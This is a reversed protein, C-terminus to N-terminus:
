VSMHIGVRATLDYMFVRSDTSDRGAMKITSSGLVLVSNHLITLTPCNHHLGAALSCNRELGCLMLRLKNGRWTLINPDKQCSIVHNSCTTIFSLSQPNNFNLARQQDRAPHERQFEFLCHLQMLVQLTILQHNFLRSYFEPGAKQHELLLRTPTM